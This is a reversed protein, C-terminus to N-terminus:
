SRNWKHMQRWCGCHQGQDGCDKGCSSGRRGEAWSKACYSEVGLRWSGNSGTRGSPTYRQSSLTKYRRYPLLGTYVPYRQRLPEPRLASRELGGIRKRTSRSWIQIRPLLNRICPRRIGTKIFTKTAPRPYHALCPPVNFM